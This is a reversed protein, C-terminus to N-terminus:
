SDLSRVPEPGTRTASRRDSKIGVHGELRLDRRSPTRRKCVQVTQQRHLEVDSSRLARRKGGIPRHKGNNGTTERSPQMGVFLVVGVVPVQHYEEDGPEECKQESGQRDIGDHLSM